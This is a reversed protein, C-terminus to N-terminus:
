SGALAAEIEDLLQPLRDFGPAFRVELVPVRAIVSLYQEILRRKRAGDLIFSYVHPLLAALALGPPLRKVSPRPSPDPVRTLVCLARLPESEADGGDVWDRRVAATESPDAAFFAASAPRLAARFPLPVAQVRSTSLDLAVTDDAWAPYGRRFLGFAITSKGAGSAGCLAVVGETTLVASAHIAELGRVPLIWPVVDRWFAERVAESPVPRHPVARVERTDSEFYFSALRPWDMQCRGNLNSCM